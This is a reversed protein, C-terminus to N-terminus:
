KRDRARKRRQRETQGQRNVIRMCDPTCYKQPPGGKTGSREPRLFFARCNARACRALRHSRTHLKQLVLLYSAHTTRPLYIIQREHSQQPDALVLMEELLQVLEDRVRAKARSPAKIFESLRQRFDDRTSAVEDWWEQAVASFDIEGLDDNALDDRMKKLVAKRGLIPFHKAHMYLLYVTLKEKDTPTEKALILGQTAIEDGSPPEWVRSSRLQKALEHAYPVLEYIGLDEPKPPDPPRSLLGRGRVGSDSIVM